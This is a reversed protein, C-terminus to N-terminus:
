TAPAKARNSVCAPNVCEWSTVGSDDRGAKTEAASSERVYTLPQKCWLCLQPRIPNPSKAPKM